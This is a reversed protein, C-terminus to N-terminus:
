GCYANLNTAPKCTNQVANTTNNKKDNKSTEDPLLTSQLVPNFGGVGGIVGDLLEDDLKKSDLNNM